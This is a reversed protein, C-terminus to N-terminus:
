HRSWQLAPNALFQTAKADPWRNSPDMEARQTTPTGDARNKASITSQGDAVEVNLPKERDIGQIDALVDELYPIIHICALKSPTADGLTIHKMDYRSIWLRCKNRVQGTSVVNRGVRKIANNKRLGQLM